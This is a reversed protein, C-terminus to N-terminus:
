KWTQKDFQFKRVMECTSVKWIQLETNSNKIAFMERNTSTKIEPSLKVGNYACKFKGDEWFFWQPNPNYSSVVFSNETYVLVVKGEVSNLVNKSEISNLIDDSKSDLLYTKYNKEVLNLSGDPSVDYFHYGEETWYHVSQSIVKGTNSEIFYVTHEASMSGSYLFIEGNDTFRFYLPPYIRCQNMEFLVKNESVSQLIVKDSIYGQCKEIETNTNRILISNGNPSFEIETVFHNKPLSKISTVPKQSKIDWITIEAEDFKGSIALKKGDASFAVAGSLITTYDNNDFELFSTKQISTLDYIYVGTNDLLALKDSNPSVAYDLLVIEGKSQVTENNSLVPLETPPQTCSLLSIVVILIGITKIKMNQESPFAWRNANGAHPRAHVINPLLFFEFRPFHKFIGCVGV